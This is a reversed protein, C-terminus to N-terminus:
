LAARCAREIREALSRAKLDGEYRLSRTVVLADEATPHEIERLNWLARMYYEKFALRYLAVFDEPPTPTPMMVPRVM